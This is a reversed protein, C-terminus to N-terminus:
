RSIKAPRTPGQATPACPEPVSYLSHTYTSKRKRWDTSCCVVVGPANDLYQIWDTCGVFQVAVFCRSIADQGEGLWVPVPQPVFSRCHYYLTLQPSYSQHVM